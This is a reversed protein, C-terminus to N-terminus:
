SVHSWLTGAAHSLRHLNKESSGVLFAQETERFLEPHGLGINETAPKRRELALHHVGCRMWDRQQSAQDVAVVARGFATRICPALMVRNESRLM